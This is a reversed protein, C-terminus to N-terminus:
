MTGYSYDSFTYDMYATNLMDMGFRGISINGMHDQFDFRGKLFYQYESEPLGLDWTADIYYYKGDLKVYNWAHNSNTRIHAEVGASNALYYFLDAIGACVATHNIAAAYGTFKLTYSDDELNAYDYTVNSCIYNYIARVKEYDSVNEIHLGALIRDAERAFEKEQEKTLLYIPRIKMNYVYSGDWRKTEAAEGEGRGGYLLALHDGELPKGTYVMAAQLIDNVIFDLMIQKEPVGYSVNVTEDHKLLQPLVHKGAAEVDQYGKASPSFFQTYLFGFVIALAIVLSVISGTDRNKKKSTKTSKSATSGGVASSGAAASAIKLKTGCQMCFLDDKDAPAGCKPCFRSYQGDM